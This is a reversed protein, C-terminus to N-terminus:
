KTGGVIPIMQNPFDSIFYEGGTLKCDELSTAAAKILVDVEKQPAFAKYENLSKLIDSILSPNKVMAIGCYDTMFGANTESWEDLSTFIQSAKKLYEEDLTAKYLTCNFHMTCALYERDSEHLVTMSLEKAKKLININGTIYYYNVLVDAFSYTNLAFSDANDIYYKAGTVFVDLFARERSVYYNKLAAMLEKCTFDSGFDMKGFTRKSNYVKDAVTKDFDMHFIEKLYDPDLTPIDRLEHTYAFNKKNEMNEDFSHFMMSFDLTKSAKPKFIVKVPTKPIIFIKMGKKNLTFTSPYNVFASKILATVGLFEDTYDAMFTNVYTEPIINESFNEVIEKSIEHTIESDEGEHTVPKKGSCFITNHRTEPEYGPTFEFSLSQVHIPSDTTNTLKCSIDLVSSDAYATFIIESDFPTTQNYSHCGKVCVSASVAGNKVMSVDKVSYTYDHGYNDILIPGTFDRNSLYRKNYSILEFLKGGKKSVQFNLKGTSIFFTDDKEEIIPEYSSKGVDLTYDCSANAPLDAAFDVKACAVSGDEYSSLTTVDSLVENGEKDHVVLNNGFLFGKKFPVTVSTVEHREFNFLKNFHLNM